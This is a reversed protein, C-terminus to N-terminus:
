QTLACQQLKAILRKWTLPYCNSNKWGARLVASHSPCRFCCYHLLLKPFAAPCPASPAPGASVPGFSVVLVGVTVFGFHLTMRVVVSGLVHRRLHWAMKDSAVTQQRIKLCQVNAACM